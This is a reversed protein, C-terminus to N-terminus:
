EALTAVYIPDRARKDTMLKAEVIAPRLVEATLASVSNLKAGTM